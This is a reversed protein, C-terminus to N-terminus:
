PRTTGTPSAPPSRTDVTRSTATATSTDSKPLYDPTDVEVTANEDARFALQGMCQEAEARLQNVKDRAIVVKTFEHDATQAERRAVSEQLSVDAQESIRLLGKVQTLKENVCTLKVVDKTQRAEELKSLVDKLSTRMSSLADSSLKLKEPDAVKSADVPPPSPPTQAQALALAAAGLVVAATLLRVSVRVEVGFLSLGGSFRPDPVYWTLALKVVAPYGRALKDNV